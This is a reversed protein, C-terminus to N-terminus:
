PERQAAVKKSLLLVQPNIKLTSRGIADLNAEFLLGKAMKELCFMGGASCFASQEGITLVPKGTLIGLIHEREADDLRGVIVVDCQAEGLHKPLLEEVTAQRAPAIFGATRKHIEINDSHGVICVKLHNDHKEPWRTYGVIGWVVTSVALESDSLPKDTDVLSQGWAPSIALCLLCVFRVVSQLDSRLSFFPFKKHPFRPLHGM